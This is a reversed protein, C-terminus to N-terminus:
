RIVALKGLVSNNREGDITKVIVKYLYTGNAIASGDADSGDWGITVFRDSINFQEIEKILRGAITYIRIKVDIPQTLNQNFTFHTTSSFPNPYNYVDRIVLENDNVVTFYTLESAYNNFVDWAKVLLSYEGFNLSNFNYNIQGSKGGADLDGVFYNTFDIPNSEQQNLIGELKHGIGTGTTNLGTEDFLKVILKPNPGVLYSYGYNIDDFYIEIEPGKGDDVATTDTGGIIVNTTYGIGDSISDFFYFVVKGNKNEYSIDKPVVFDATFRGNVVSVRGNFIIGGQQKVDMITPNAIGPITLRIVRESDFVTLLGEGSFDDWVSNDPRLVAGDVTTRSLAKIQVDSTLDVGNISDINASYQPIRLRLTPDAFLIYKRDNDSNNTQKTLQVARGLTIPFNMTDRPQTFINKILNKNLNHNSISFVLRASSIGAIAGRDKLFIMAETSSQFNPIDFYGFDCTAACMFFYKDNQMLPLAVSKEFIYEHAWLEPSGHGIYNIFLTGNNIAEIIAQNVAPKRRGQGTIVDPYAAAYIKSKDFYGPLEQEAIEETPKTHESGEYRGQSGIGDDAILTILNQWSGREINSEYDIIKDVVNNAEEPTTVPLRGSALDVRPDPGDVLVFFDDTVYSNLLALSQVTQWTPIFNDGYGETNRYDYTGKGFLLVYEPTIQWNDYAYKIYDRLATPDLVGCSFENYINDVDVVITSLPIIAHNQRYDRLRNAANEFNKHTIIIFKAGTSEGLINSNSIEFPNVPAKFRDSGVAIYKSRVTSSEEFKFRCEGGSHFSYNTVLSVNAYDSVDFVRINSSTFGNLQYEIIGTNSNSFFMLYDDVASLAKVYEIEFFDLYGVSSVTAPNVKFTLASRNDPIPANYSFNLNHEIGATYSLTGFGNANRSAVQNGNESILLEMGTSTGVAFRVRYNVPESNIRHNLNNMYTRSSVASSFDDGFNQRGTKGLNIKDVEWDAFAATTNQVFSPDDNLGPKQQIRKGQSGGSTIWFYNKDSYTHRSRAIKNQAPDFDWFSHGRGYFLIYDNENFVGDEEGSVMIANEVLDQPRPQTVNEPLVKGGNNYIKITRPDVTNADIGLSSLMSRTIRYIGEEPAEFRIWRGTALVSNNLIKNLRDSRDKVWYKAVEFNLVVNKLFDDAPTRSFSSGSGFNIRVLLKNYLRITGSSANFQVPSIVFSQINLGRSIGFEGFSVIDEGFTHTFYEPDATYRYGPFDGDQFIEPVPLLHGPIESYSSSLLEITTGFEGPVGVNIIKQELMASGTENIDSLTSGSFTVRRYEKGEIQVVSTDTYTPTYEFVLASADSAIVRIDNQSYILISMLLFLASIKSYM